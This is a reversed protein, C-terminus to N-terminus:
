EGDDDDLALLWLLWLPGLLLGPNFGYFWPDMRKREAVVGCAFASALWGAVILLAVM